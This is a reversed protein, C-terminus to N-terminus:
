YLLLSNLKQFFEFHFPFILNIAAMDTFCSAMDKQCNICSNLFECHFIFFSSLYNVSNENKKESNRLNESRLSLKVPSFQYCRAYMFTQMGFLVQLNSRYRLVYFTFDAEKNQENQVTISEVVPLLSLTLIHFKMYMRLRQSLMLNCCQSVRLMLLRYSCECRSKLHLRLWRSFMLNCYQSATFM